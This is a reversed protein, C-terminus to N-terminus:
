ISVVTHEREAAAYFLCDSLAILPNSTVMLRKLPRTAYLRQSRMQFHDKLVDEGHGNRVVLPELGRAGLWVLTSDLAVWCSTKALINIDVGMGPDIRSHRFWCSAM